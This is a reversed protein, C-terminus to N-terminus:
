LDLGFVDNLRTRDAEDFSRRRIWDHTGRNSMNDFHNSLMFSPGDPLTLTPVRKDVGKHPGLGMITHVEDTNRVVRSLGCSTKAKKVWTVSHRGRDRDYTLYCGDLFTIAYDDMALAGHARISAVAGRGLADDDDVRITALWGPGPPAILGCTQLVEEVPTETGAYHVKFGYTRALADLQRRADAPMLTSSLIVHEFDTDTQNALSKLLIHEFTHFRYEMRRPDFLYKVKEDLSPNRPLIRRRLSRKPRLKKWSHVSDELLISFRTIVYVRPTEM